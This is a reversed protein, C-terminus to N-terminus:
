GFAQCPMRMIMPVQSLVLRSFWWGGLEIMMFLLDIIVVAQAKSAKEAAEACLLGDVPFPDVVVGGTVV